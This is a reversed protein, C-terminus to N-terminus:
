EEKKDKKSQKPWITILIILPISLINPLFFVSKKIFFFQKPWPYFWTSTAYLMAIDTWIIHCWKGIGKSEKYPFKKNWYKDVYILFLTEPLIMLFVPKIGHWLASWLFVMMDGAIPKWNLARLRAYLYNKWFLHASHDWRRMFEDATGSMLVDPISLNSVEDPPLVDSGGGISYIGAEAMHWAPFYRTVVLITLIVLAILRIIYPLSQYWKSSFTDYSIYTFQFIALVAYIFSRLFRSKALKLGSEPTPEQNCHLMRDFIKYEYSPGALSGYLTWSYAIWHLFPPKESLAVCSWRERTIKEGNKIKQGDSLNQNTMITKIFLMMTFGTMDLAWDEGRTFIILHSIFTLVFAIGFNILTPLELIFYTAISM